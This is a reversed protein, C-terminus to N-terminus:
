EKPLVVPTIKITDQTIHYDFSNNTIDRVVDLVQQVSFKGLHSLEVQDTSSLESTVSLTRGYYIAIRKLADSLSTDVMRLSTVRWSAVSEIDIQDISAEESKTNYTLREGPDDLNMEENNPMNVKVIGETLIVQEFPDSSRSHVNFETGLVEIVMGATKIRFPSLSDHVVSFFAEGDLTVLREESFDDNYSITTASNVWVQSGDPLVIRKQSDESVSEVNALLPQPADVSRERWMWLAGAVVSVPILVAAVRMAVRHWTPRRLPKLVSHPEQPADIGRYQHLDPNLEIATAIRLWMQELTLPTTLSTESRGSQFAELFLKNLIDEKLESDRDDALYSRVEDLIEDVSDGDSLLLGIMWETLEMKASLDLDRHNRETMFRNVKKPAEGRM